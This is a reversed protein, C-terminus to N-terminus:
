ADSFARAWNELYGQTGPPGVFQALALCNRWSAANSTILESRKKPDMGAIATREKLRNILFHYRCMKAAAPTQTDRQSEERARHLEGFSKFGGLGEPGGIVGKCIQCSCVKDLFDQKSAIGVNPYCRQIEAVGVRKHIAPLYYRVTPAAAGIVQAVPKREGYGVGHSVGTLGDHALLMSFYGGHLNFVAMHGALERIFSRLAVARDASTELEDFGDFWLWVGAVGTRKLGDSLAKLHSPSGLIAESTCLIAHAPASSKLRVTRQILDLADPIAQNAWKEHIFFYPAFVAAPGCDDGFEAKLLDDESIIERVRELQYRVVTRCMEDRNEPAIVSVDIATCSKGDGVATRFANGLREALDAYSDKVSKVKRKSGRSELRESKLSELDVRKTRTDPDIYPGFCYTMPDLYYPLNKKARQRLAFILSATAAPTIELLNGGFMFGDLSGALMEFYEKEAHSGLRLVVKPPAIAV